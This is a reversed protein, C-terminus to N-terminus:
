MKTGFGFVQLANSRQFWINYEAQSKKNRNREVHFAVSWNQDDKCPGLFEVGSEGLLGKIDKGGERM